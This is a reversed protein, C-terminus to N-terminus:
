KDAEGEYQRRDMVPQHVGFAVHRQNEHRDAEHRDQDAADKQQDGRRDINETAIPHAARRPTKRGRRALASDSWDIAPTSSIACPRALFLNSRASNAGAINPYQM